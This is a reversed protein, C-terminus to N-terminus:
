FIIMKTVKFLCFAFCQYCISLFTKCSKPSLYKHYESKSFINVDDDDDNDDSDSGGGDDNDDDNNNVDDTNVKKLFLLILRIMM